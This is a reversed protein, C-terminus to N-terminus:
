DPCPRDRRCRPLRRQTLAVVVVVSMPLGTSTGVVAGAIGLLLLPEPPLALLVVPVPVVGVPPESGTDGGEPNVVVVFLTVPIVVVVFLFAPIVAICFVFEPIVVICFVFVPVVVIPLGTSTGIVSGVIGVSNVVVFLLVPTVVVVFVPTVVVVPLAPPPPVM